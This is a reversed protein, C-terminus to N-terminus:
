GLQIDVAQIVAYLDERTMPHGEEEARQVASLMQVVGELGSKRRQQSRMLAAGLRNTLQLRELTEIERENAEDLASEAEDARELAENVEDQCDNEREQANERAEEVEDLLGGVVEHLPNNENRLKRWTEEINM